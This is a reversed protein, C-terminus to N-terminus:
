GRSRWARDLSTEWSLGGGVRSAAHTSRRSLKQRSRRRTRSRRRYITSGRRSRERSRRGWPPRRAALGRAGGRGLIAAGRAAHGEAVLADGLGALAGAEDPAFRLAREFLPAAHRGLGTTQWMRGARLWVAHKAATGRALAELREVDALAGELRGLLLRKEARAWRPTTSRPSRALSADLWRLSSEIERTARAAIEFARAGLAPARETEGVRELNALAGDLDGIELLLEGPTVGLDGRADKERAEALIALAAEARGPTRADIDMIRRAIEGHRPARELAELYAIRAAVLDGNVLLDDAARLLTAIEHAVIADRSPAAPLADRAAQLIWTDANVAVVGWKVNESAPVRAGAEPLLARAVAAGARRFCFEAGQREAALGVVAKVCAIAMATAPAPLESGRANTVVLALDEGRSLVHLDFAVIPASSGQEDADAIATVCVTASSPALAVWVDPTQAGVLGRLRPAAWRELARAGLELELRELHSWRHRFRAVGGSVDVPFTM